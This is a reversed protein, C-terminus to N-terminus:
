LKFDEEKFEETLRQRDPNRKLPDYKYKRCSDAVHTIGRKECIVENSYSSPNGFVCYECYRPLKKNFMKRSM